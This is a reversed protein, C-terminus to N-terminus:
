SDILPYDCSKSSIKSRRTKMSSSAWPLLGMLVIEKWSDFNKICSLFRWVQKEHPLTKEGSFFACVVQTAKM